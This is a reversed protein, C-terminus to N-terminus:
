EGFGSPVEWGNGICSAAGDRCWRPCRGAGAPGRWPWTRPWKSGGDVNWGIKGRRHAKDVYRADGSTEFKDRDKSLVDPEIM